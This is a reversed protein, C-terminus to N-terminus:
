VRHLFMGDDSFCRMQWSCMSELKEFLVFFYKLSHNTFCVTNKLTALSECGLRPGTHSLPLAQSEYGPPGLNLAEQDMPNKIHIDKPLVSWLRLRTSTFVLICMFLHATATIYSFYKKFHCLVGNLWDILECRPLDGSQEVNSIPIAYEPLHCNLADEHHRVLCFTM